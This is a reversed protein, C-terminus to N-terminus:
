QTKPIEYVNISMMLLPRLFQRNHHPEITKGDYYYWQFPKLTGAKSPMTPLEAVRLGHDIFPQANLMVIVDESTKDPDIAYHIMDGHGPSFCMEGSHGSFDFAMGPKAALVAGMAQIEKKAAGTLGLITGYEAQLRQLEAGLQRNKETLEEVTQTQGVAPLLLLLLVIGSTVWRVSHRMGM